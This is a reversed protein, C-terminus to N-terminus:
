LRATGYTLARWLWEAPGYRFARTWGWALLLVVIWVGLVVGLLQFRELTGFYGFGHGYFITTCILTELLYCSLATKGVAALPALFPAISSRALLMVAASYGIATPAMALTNFHTLVTASLTPQRGTLFDIWLGLASLTWGSAIGIIAVRVYRAHTWEGSFFGSKMLAMGALMLGTVFPLTYMLLVYTQLMVTSLARQPMQELWSGQYAAVEKLQSEHSPNFAEDIGMGASAFASTLAGLLLSLILGGGFFAAASWCLTKISMKRFVFALMGILAYSFLIDGYWLLYAHLLGFGLLVFMRRFHILSGTHPDSMRSQQLVIGAGFLLAFTSIFKGSAVIHVIYHTWANVGIMDGWSWAYSYASIPMSFSQINMLLIGLMAVGRLVDIAVIRQRAPLTADPETIPQLTTPESM